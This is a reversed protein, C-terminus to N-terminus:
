PRFLDLGDGAGVVGLWNGRARARWSVGGDKGMWQSLAGAVAAGDERPLRIWVDRGQLKLFDIPIATGTLGLYQQLASTLLTRATLLDINPPHPLSSLLTLHLYTHPPSKITLTRPPPLHPTTPLKPPPPRQKSIAPSTM